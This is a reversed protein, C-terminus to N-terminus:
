ATSMPIRQQDNRTGTLPAPGPPPLVLVPSPETGALRIRVSVVRGPGPMM